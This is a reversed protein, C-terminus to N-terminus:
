TDLLFICKFMTQTKWSRKLCFHADTNQLCNWTSEGHRFAKELYQLCKVPDFNRQCSKQVGFVTSVQGCISNDVCSALQQLKPFLHRESSCLYISFIELSSIQSCFYLYHWFGYQGWKENNRTCFSCSIFTPKGCYFCFYKHIIWTATLKGLGLLSTMIIKRNEQKHNCISQRPPHSHSHSIHSRDGSTESELM